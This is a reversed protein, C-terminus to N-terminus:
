WRSVREINQSFNSKMKAENTQLYNMLTRLTSAVTALDEVGDSIRKFSLAETM